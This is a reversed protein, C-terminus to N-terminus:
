SCEENALVIKGVRARAVAQPVVKEQSGQRANGGYNGNIFKFIELLYYNFGEM